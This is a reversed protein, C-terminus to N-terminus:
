IDIGTAVVIFRGVYMNEKVYVPTFLQHNYYKM